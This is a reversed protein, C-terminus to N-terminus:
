CRRRRSCDCRPPGDRRPVGRSWRSARPSSRDTPEASNGLLYALDRGGAGLDLTQWDVATVPGGATPPPSSCTTSGTTATCWPTPRQKGTSGTPSARPSRRWCGAPTTPSIRHQYREIFMPAVIQVYMVADGGSSALWDIEALGPDGWRPAHLGALNTAAVVVQDDTAGAIQDGQRAPALDELVLTFTTGDDAVAGFLCDPTAIPLETALDTYFRVEKRYGGAAGAARSEESPSPFKIVVTAPAAGPDGDYTIRYRENHAMQGTGVPESELSAVTADHGAHRLMGTMWQPTIAAPDDIIPPTEPM